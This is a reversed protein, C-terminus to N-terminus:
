SSCDQFLAIMQFRVEALERIVLSYKQSIEDAVGKMTEWMCRGSQLCAM